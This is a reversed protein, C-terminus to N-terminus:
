RSFSMSGTRNGSASRPTSSPAAACVIFGDRELALKVGARTPPHDDAILVRIAGSL